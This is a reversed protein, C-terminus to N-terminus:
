TGPYYDEPGSILTTTLIPNCNLGAKIAIVDNYFTQDRSLQLNGEWGDKTFELDLDSTEEYAYIVYYKLFEQQHYYDYASQNVHVIHTDYGFPDFGFTIDDSALFFNKVNADNFALAGISKVTRPIYIDQKHCNYRGFAGEGIKELGENLTVKGTINDSPLDAFAFDGIETVRYTLGENCVYPLINLNEGIFIDKIGNVEKLCVTGM